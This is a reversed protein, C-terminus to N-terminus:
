VLTENEYVRKLQEIRERVLREREVFYIYPLISGGKYKASVFSAQEECFEEWLEQAHHLENLRGADAVDEIKSIWRALDGNALALQHAALENMESQTLSHTVGRRAVETELPTRNPGKEARSARGLLIQELKALDEPSLHQDKMQRNIELIHRTRNLTQDKYQGEIWRRGFYGLAGFCAAVLAAILISEM